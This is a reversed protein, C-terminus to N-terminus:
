FSVKLSLLMAGKFPGAPPMLSLRANKLPQYRNPISAVWVFNALWLAAGSFILVESINKQSQAKNFLESRKVPDEEILYGDYTNKFNQNYIIGGAIAGYTAIGMLWYPKGKSIRTQGLGPMIASMLLMSGRNFSKIYREAKVEVTVEENLFISDNSPYWIIKKNEGSRIDGIDGSISKIKLIQGNKKVIEVWVYFQDSEKSDIFDYKILLQKGDFELKLPTIQINQSFAITEFSLFLLLPMFNKAKM